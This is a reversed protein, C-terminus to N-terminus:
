FIIMSLVFMFVTGVIMPVSTRKVIDFPEEKTTGAVIMVVASVPSVARLLNGALGMPVTVAFPSIGAAAALPVMLPVMAYFLAMGSGSLLVILATFLVLILPLVFGSAQTTQMVTQLQTILGIAKLGNVFTSAAVLLVVIGMANGMGKFFSETATLVKNGDRHRILECAIAIIFSMMSVVEVSLNLTSGTIANIAFVVLLILIPLLPLLTYVFKYLGSGEIQKPAEVNLAVKEEGSAVLKKDCYKQWFTHALAMVLLTPVSVIAHHQFVYDAVPMGLEAAIAVNDAGLPTPMVTATTAIIAAATLTSMGSEKLVPYLTALLIISLNSASPIVLSLLNGLLFVIPVLVYASKIGKLPKTLTNVTVENAGIKNMYATYGGLVLIVFGSSPLTKKFQDIIALLPDVLIHVPEEIVANGMMIAVMMLLIGVGFLTIKIDLKKLLMVVVIAVAILGAGYMVFSSM